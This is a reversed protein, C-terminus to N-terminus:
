EIAAFTFSYYSGSKLEESWLSRISTNKAYIKMGNRWSKWVEADIYGAKFYMYEEACLNFYDYLVQRDELSLMTTTPRELIKNLNGNLRDYRENFQRFLDSFLKTEHLHQAYLFYGFGATALIAPIFFEPIKAEAIFLYAVLAIALFFLIILLPYYSRRSLNLPHTPM